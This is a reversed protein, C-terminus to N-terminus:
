QVLDSDLYSYILPMSPRVFEYTKSCNSFVVITAYYSGDYCSVKNSDFTMPTLSM